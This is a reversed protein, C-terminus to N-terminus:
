FLNSTIEYDNYELQTMLIDMFRDVGIVEKPCKNGNMFIRDCIKGLRACSEKGNRTTNTIIFKEIEKCESKTLKVLNFKKYM